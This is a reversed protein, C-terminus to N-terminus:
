RAREYVALASDDAVLVLDDDPTLRMQEADEAGFGSPHTCSEYTGDSGECGILTGIVESDDISGDGDLRFQVNIQNVGDTYFFTVGNDRGRPPDALISLERIAGAPVPAGEYEVASWEGVVDDRDTVLRSEPVPVHPHTSKRLIELEVYPAAIAVALVAVALAAIPVLLRDRLSLGTDSTM